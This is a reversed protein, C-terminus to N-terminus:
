EIKEFVIKQLEKSWRKKIDEKHEKFGAIFGSSFEGRHGEIVEVLERKANRPVHELNLAELKLKEKATDKEQLRREEAKEWLDEYSPIKELEKGKKMGIKALVMTHMRQLFEHREEVKLIEAYGELILNFAFPSPINTHIEEVKIKESEVGELVKEANQIDMMDELVERRAEKLICFDENIRKVANMLIMSSVQQRGVRKTQGKYKRLIMFARVACHRFRRRLVESRDIAIEMLKRLEKSKLLKLAQMAQMKKEVTIYFGNDSIGVEVDRHQSRGVAFAVARSLVDNVRRGYLTHFVIYTKDEPDTYYEILIKNIHPITVYAFQEKFYLYIANAANEDLYLYEHIFKMIEQKTQKAKFKEEMYRRFRQIELGVDFSLPLMESFWSPITPKKGEAAKVQAVMGRSFLFEYVNGGLVFVDGRKLKELFGEDIHGISQEGVKVTIFTEDPITGLNTMYVVRGLKGKKGLKGENRWIKGYISREELSVFEGALYSLVENFTIRDLDKYCYSQKVTKYLKEEDWVQEVAMGIIQQALVDLCNKPIHLQDIKRELANKLMVSCEVLDDRDLVIIRGKVTAHLRHGSRGIRQLLRAISKPSGVCIVLDVFGIDIGLELSTSSVIAKLQGKRLADEVAFRHEKSLSGHHAGILSRTEDPADKDIETYKRPFHTRLHHVIRETASRTNTFILTTRHEQILKDILSYMEKSLENWSANILDPVPSIVKLDVQKMMDVNIIKCKRESGVLYQAVESLPSVTASLGVRCMDASLAQLRELSLSLHVGRKNEALSHVEDVICWEVQQLHRSFKISSLVIALSEPTTVLIHPAKVAMKAKEAATTDGTRLAIRIGLSKKAIKEIEALPEILNTYIDRTLAKLPSIYVCYTKDQLIGRDASDVLENLVALFSSLTKGSGTAASILINQRCHVEFISYQQPLSFNEFKTFFWERVYPHLLEKLEEPDDPKEKYTILSM